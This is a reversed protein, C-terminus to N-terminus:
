ITYFKNCASEYDFAFNTGVGLVVGRRDTVAVVLERDLARAALQMIAAVEDPELVPGDLCVGGGACGSVDTCAAGPTTGGQCTASSPPPASGGPNSGCSWGTLALTGLLAAVMQWPLPLPPACRARLTRLAGPRPQPRSAWWWQLPLISSPM